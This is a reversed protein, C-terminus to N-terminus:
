DKISNALKSSYLLHFRVQIYQELGMKRVELKNQDKITRWTKSPLPPLNAFTKSLVKNLQHFHSYRKELVWKQGKKQM